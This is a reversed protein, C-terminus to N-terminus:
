RIGMPFTARLSEIVNRIHNASHEARVGDRIVFWSVRDGIHSANIRLQFASRGNDWTLTVSGDPDAGPGPFGIHPAATYIQAALRKADDWQARGVPKAGPQLKVKAGDSTEVEWDPDNSLIAAEAVQRKFASVDQIVNM